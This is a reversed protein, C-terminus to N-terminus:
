APPSRSIWVVLNIRDAGINGLFGRAVSLWESPLDHLEGTNEDYIHVAHSPNTDYFQKPRGFFVRRIFGRDALIELTNYCTQLTMNAGGSCAESHLREPTVFHLNGSKLLRALLLRPRTLSLGALRLEHKLSQLEANEAHDRGDNKRRPAGPSRRRSPVGANM